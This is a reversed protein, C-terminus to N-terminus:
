PEQDLLRDAENRVKTKVLGHKAFTRKILTDYVFPMESRLLQASEETIGGPTAVRSLIEDGSYGREDLLRATGSLTPIILERAQEQSLSGARAAARAFEEILVAILAPGCSTLDSAVEFNDENIVVVNGFVHFLEEIEKAAKCSVAANHCVLSVGLGMEGTLSPVVRTVGGSFFRAVQQLPLCSVISVLHTDPKIDGAIESLVHVADLPKTCLLVRNCERVITRNNGAVQVSPYKGLLEKLDAPNRTNILVNEPQLFKKDLLGQVIMSGMSGYGIIGTRSNM